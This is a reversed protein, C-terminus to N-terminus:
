IQFSLVQTLFSFRTQKNTRRNRSKKGAIVLRNRHLEKAREVLADESELAEFRNLEICPLYDSFQKLILDVNNLVELNTGGGNISKLVSVIADANFSDFKVISQFLSQIFHNSIM